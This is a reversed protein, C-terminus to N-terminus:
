QKTINYKKYVAQVATAQSRCDELANHLGTSNKNRTDGLTSLLTRCDRIQWYQWPVPKNLQRYLNELIVIDFVPGQAWINNVGVLFRNLDDTFQELDVRNSEDFAEAKVSESQQGWWAITADDVHRGLAIQQDVDPKIYFIRMDFKEPVYPDFKVAGMSLIVANPKTSLTETDLMVDM